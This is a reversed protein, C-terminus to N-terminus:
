MYIKSIIIYLIMFCLIYMHVTVHLGEHEVKLPAHSAFIYPSMTGARGGNGARGGDGLITGIWNGSFIVLCLNLM